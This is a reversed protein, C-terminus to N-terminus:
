HDAHRGHPASLIQGDGPLEGRLPPVGRRMRGHRRGARLERRLRRMDGRMGRVGSRAAALREAHLQGLNSLNGRLQDDVASAAGRHAQRGRAPLLAANAPLDRPM